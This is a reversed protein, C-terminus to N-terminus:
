TQQGAMIEVGTRYLEFCLDPHLGLNSPCFCCTYVTKMPRGKKTKIDKAYCLRCKKTPRPDKNGEEPMKIARKQCGTLRDPLDTGPENILHQPVDPTATILLAIAGHLFSLYTVKANAVTHHQFVKFANLSMQMILKFALKKYWKYSKRLAQIAHLLQNICDIGGMHTNYSKVMTPKFIQNDLHDNGIQIM